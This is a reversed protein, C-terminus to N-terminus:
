LLFFCKSHMLFDLKTVFALSVIIYYNIKPLLSLLIELSMLLSDIAIGYAKPKTKKVKGDTKLQLFAPM